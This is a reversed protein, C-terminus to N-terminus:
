RRRLRARRDEHEAKTVNITSGYSYVGPTFLLNDGAALAANIQAM